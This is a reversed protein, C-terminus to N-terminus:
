FFIIIFTTKTKLKSDTKSIDVTFNTYGSPLVNPIQSNSQNQFDSLYTQLDSKTVIKNNFGIKTQLQYGPSSADLSIASLQKSSSIILLINLKFIFYNFM